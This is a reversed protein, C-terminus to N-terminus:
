ARSLNFTQSNALCVFTLAGELLTRNNVSFHKMPGSNESINPVRTESIKKRGFRLMLLLKASCLNRSPLSFAREREREREEECTLVWACVRVGTSWREILASVRERELM